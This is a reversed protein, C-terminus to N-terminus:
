RAPLMLSPCTAWQSFHMLLLTKRCRDFLRRGLSDKTTSPQINKRLWGLREKAAEQARREAEQKQQWREARLQKVAERAAYREKALQEKAREEPSSGFLYLLIHSLM